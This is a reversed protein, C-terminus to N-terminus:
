SQRGIWEPRRKEVFARIGERADAHAMNRAVVEGCYEYADTLPMSLQRYFAQNGLALTYTCKSAIEGALADVTADLEELPVPCMQKVLGIRM